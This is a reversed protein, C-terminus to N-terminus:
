SEALAALAALVEPFDGTIAPGIQPALQDAGPGTIETRYHIRTRGDPQPQLAHITRVLVEGLDVVDVFREDVVVEALVLRVSDGDPLKMEVVSGAAFEGDIHAQAVGSNWRPWQTVDAWFRWVAAPSADTDVNEQYAWM